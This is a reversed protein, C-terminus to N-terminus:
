VPIPDGAPLPSGTAPNVTIQTPLAFDNLQTVTTGVLGSPSSTTVQDIFGQTDFVYIFTVVPGTTEFPTQIGTLNHKTDYSYLWARPPTRTM